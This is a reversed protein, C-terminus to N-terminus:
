REYLEWQLVLVDKQDSLIRFSSRLAQQILLCAKRLQNLKAIVENSRDISELFERLHDAGVEPWPAQTDRTDDM